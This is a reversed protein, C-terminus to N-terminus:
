MVVFYHYNVCVRKQTTFLWKKVQIINILLQIYINVPVGPYYKNAIIYTICFNPTILIRWIREVYHYIVMVVNFIPYNGPLKWRRYGTCSSPSLHPVLESRRKLTKM